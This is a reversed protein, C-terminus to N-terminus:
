TCDHDKKPLFALQSILTYTGPKDIEVSTWEGRAEVCGTARGDAGRLALQPSYRVQLDVSGATPAAFTVAGPELEVVSAGRVLPQSDSVSFLEWNPDRWISQLYPLGSRILDAEARAAYDVSTRTPMAVWRVALESLWAQYSMATLSGDYFMPNAARDAQRDWGRAIPVTPAVYAASWHSVPDVIEVRQGLAGPGAVTAARQLAGVLPAYYEQQAQPGGAKAVQVSLDTIPWAIAWAVLFVIGSRRLM